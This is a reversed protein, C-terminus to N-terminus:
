SFDVNLMVPFGGSIVVSIGKELRVGAPFIHSINEGDGTTSGSTAQWILDSSTPETSNSNYIQVVAQETEPQTNPTSITIGFMVSPIESLVASSSIVKCTSMSGTNHQIPNLVGGSKFLNNQEIGGNFIFFIIKEFRYPLM